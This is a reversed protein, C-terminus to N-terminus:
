RKLLLSRTGSARQLKPSKKTPTSKSNGSSKVQVPKKTSLLRRLEVRERRLESEKEHPYIESNWKIESSCAEKDCFVESNRKNKSFNPSKKRPLHHPNQVKLPLQKPNKEKSSSSEKSEKDEVKPTTTSKAEVVNIGLSLLLIISNM